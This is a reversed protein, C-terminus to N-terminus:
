LTEGPHRNQLLQHKVSGRDFMSSAEPIQGASSSLFRSYDASIAAGAALQRVALLAQRVVEEGLHVQRYVTKFM